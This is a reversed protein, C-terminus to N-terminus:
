RMMLSLPDFRESPVLDNSKDKEVPPLQFFVAAIRRGTSTSMFARFDHSSSNDLRACLTESIEILDLAIKADGGKIRSLKKIISEVFHMGLLVDYSGASFMMLDQFIKKMKSDPCSAVFTVYFDAWGFTSLFCILIGLAFATKPFASISFHKEVPNGNWLAQLNNFVFFVANTGLTGAFFALPLMIVAAAPWAAEGALPETTSKTVCLYGSQSALTFTGVLAACIYQTTSFFRSSAQQSRGKEYWSKGQEMLHVLKDGPTEKQKLAAHIKRAQRLDNKLFSCAGELYKRMMMKLKYMMVLQADRSMKYQLYFLTSKLGYRLYRDSSVLYFNIGTITVAIMLFDKETPSRGIVFSGMSFPFTQLGALTLLPIARLAKISTPEERSLLSKFLRWVEDAAYMSQAMVLPIISYPAMTNIFSYPTNVQTGAVYFYPTVLGGQILMYVVNGKDNNSIRAETLNALNDSSFNQEIFEEISNKALLATEESVEIALPTNLTDQASENDFRKKPRGVLM